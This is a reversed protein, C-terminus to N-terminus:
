PTAVECETWRDCVHGHGDEFVIAVNDEDIDAVRAVVSNPLLGPQASSPEVNGDDLFSRPDGDRVRLVLSRVPVDSARCLMLGAM